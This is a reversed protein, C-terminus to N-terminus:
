PRLYFGQGRALWSGEATLAAARVRNRAHGGLLSSMLRFSGGTMQLMFDLGLGAVWVIVSLESSERKQSERPLKQLRPSVLM